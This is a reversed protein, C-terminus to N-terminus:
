AQFLYIKQADAAITMTEGYPIGKTGEEKTSKGLYHNLVKFLGGHTVIVITQGLHKQALEKIKPIARSVMEAKSEGNKGCPFFIEEEPTLDNYFKFHPEQKYQDKTYGEFKGHFEGKFEDYTTFSIGINESLISSTQIASLSSSSYIASINENKLRSALTEAQKQGNTNLEIDLNGQLRKTDSWDTSGHQALFIRCTKEPLENENSLVILGLSSKFEEISPHKPAPFEYSSITSM